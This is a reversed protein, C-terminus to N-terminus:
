FNKVIKKKLIWMENIGSRVYTTACFMQLKERAAILIKTLFLSLPKNSCRSPNKKCTDEFTPKKKPLTKSDM